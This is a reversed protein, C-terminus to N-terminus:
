GGKAARELAKRLARATFVRVLDRKYAESGRLDEAPESEEAALRAAQAITADDPRKGQLAAEARKAKIPTLGV